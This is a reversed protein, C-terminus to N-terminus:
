SQQWHAWARRFADELTRVFRPPDMLVSAQMRGRLTRRLEALRPLDGALQVVLARYGDWDRAVLDTMGLATLISAGGRSTTREGARTVVPVGMWLADCTTTGGAFPYTDLAIDIQHYRAFYPQEAVRGVLDLRRPDIGRDVFFRRVRDQLSGAPVHLMLRAAPLERLLAAWADLLEDNVKSFFNFSGLTVHGRSAAPLPSIRSEAEPLNPHPTYCWYTELRLPREFPRSEEGPAVPDIVADTLRWDIAHLGTGACYALYTMQVPAPKRAFTLLANDITHMSLDILIDIGDRQVQQALEEPSLAAVARWHETRAQLASVMQDTRRSVSYCFVEVRSRDHHELVPLMFRGVPHSRLDASVYGIRLRRNDIPARHHTMRPVQSAHRQNWLALEADIDADSVWPLLYLTMLYASHLAAGDPRADVARRLLAAAERLEGADRLALAFNGLLTPDDPKLALATRFAAISADLQDLARYEMAQGAHADANNPARRAAEAYAALAERSHGARSYAEALGMWADPDGPQLEIAKRFAEVAEQPRALAVLAVGTNFVAEVLRPDLRAANRYAHLADQFRRLKVFADGQMRHLAALDPLVRLHTECLARADDPRNAQLLCNVSNVAADRNVPDLALARGYASMAKDTDGLYRWAEGLNSWYRSPVGAPASQTLAIAKEILEVAARPQNVQIAIVGLLHTADAHSPLVALIQRYLSEADALRGAQHHALALAFAQDVTMAGGQTM